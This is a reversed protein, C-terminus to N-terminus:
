KQQLSEVYKSLNSIRMAVATQSKDTASFLPGWVPMDATGHTKNGAGFRLTADVKLAVSKEGYRKAMTTLDPPPTKLASAAPGGGKGDAGHCVACYDKYMQPGSGADSQVMPVKEIKKETTQALGSGSGILFVGLCVGAVYVGVASKTRM